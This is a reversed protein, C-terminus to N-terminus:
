IKELVQYYKKYLKKYYNEFITYVNNSTKPFYKSVTKQFDYIKM